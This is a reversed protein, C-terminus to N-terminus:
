GAQTEGKGAMRQPCLFEVLKAHRLGIRRVHLRAESKGLPNGGLPQRHFAGGADDGRGLLLSALLLTTGIKDYSM